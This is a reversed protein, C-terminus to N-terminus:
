STAEIAIQQALTRGARRARNHARECERCVWWHDGGSSQLRTTERTWPHGHKCTKRTADFTPEPRHDPKPRTVTHGYRLPHAVGGQVIGSPPCGIATLRAVDARCQTLVPCTSCVLLQSDPRLDDWGGEDWHGQCAARSMWEPESM